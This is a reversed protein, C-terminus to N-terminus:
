RPLSKIERVLDRLDVSNLRLVIVDAETAAQDANARSVPVLDLQLDGIRVMIDARRPQKGLIQLLKGDASV